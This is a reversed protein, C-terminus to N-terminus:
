TMHTPLVFFIRGTSGIETIFQVWPPRKDKVDVGMWSDKCVYRDLLVVVFLRRRRFAEHPKVLLVGVCLSVRCGHGNVFLLQLLVRVHAELV